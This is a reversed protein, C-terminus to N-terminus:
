KAIAAGSRLQQASRSLMAAQGDEGREEVYKRGQWLYYGQPRGIPTIVVRMRQVTGQADTVPFTFHEKHSHM